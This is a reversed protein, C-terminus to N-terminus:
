TTPLAELRSVLSTLENRDSDTAPFFQVGCTCDSGSGRTVHLVALNGRMVLRDVRIVADSLTAGSMIGALGGPIFFAFGGVSVEALPLRHRGGDPGDFEIEGGLNRPLDYRTDERRNKIVRPM